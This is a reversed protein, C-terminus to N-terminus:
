DEKKSGRKKHAKRPKAPPKVKLVDAIAEEFPLPIHRTGWELGSNALTPYNRESDYRNDEFAPFRRAVNM